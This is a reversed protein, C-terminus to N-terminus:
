HQCVTRYPVTTYGGRQRYEEHRDYKSKGNNNPWDSKIQHKLDGGEEKGFIFTTRGEGLYM